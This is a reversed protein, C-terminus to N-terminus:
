KQARDEGGRKLREEIERVREALEEQARANLATGVAALNVRALSLYAKLAAHFSRPGTGPDKLAEELRRVAAAKAAPDMPWMQELAAALLRVDRTGLPASSGGLGGPAKGADDDIPDGQM